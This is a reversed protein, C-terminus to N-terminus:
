VRFFATTQEPRRPNLERYESVDDILDLLEAQRGDTTMEQVDKKLEDFQFDSISAVERVVFDMKDKNIKSVGNLVVLRRIFEDRNQVGYQIEEMIDLVEDTTVGFQRACLYLPNSEDYKAYYQSKALDIFKNEFEDIFKTKEPEAFIRVNNAGLVSTTDYIVQAERSGHYAILFESVDVSYPLGYERRKSQAVHLTHEIERLDKYLSLLKQQYFDSAIDLKTVLKRAATHFLDTQTYVNELMRIKAVVKDYKKFEKKEIETFVVEMQARLTSALVPEDGHLAEDRRNFYDDVRDFKNLIRDKDADTLETYTYDLRIENSNSKKASSENYLKLNSKGTIGKVVRRKLQAFVSDGTEMETDGPLKEAEQEKVKVEDVSQPENDLVDTEDEYFEATGEREGDTVAFIEVDDEIEDEHASVQEISSDSYINDISDDASVDVADEAFKPMTDVTEAPTSTKEESNIIITQPTEDRSFAESEVSEPTISDNSSVAFSASTQSPQRVNINAQAVEEEINGNEINANAAISPNNGNRWDSLRNRLGGFTNRFREVIRDGLSNSDTSSTDIRQDVRDQDLKETGEEASEVTESSEAEIQEQEEMWAIAADMREDIEEDSLNLEPDDDDLIEDYTTAETDDVSDEVTHVAIRYEEDVSSESSDFTEDTTELKVTEDDKHETMDAEDDFMTVSPKAEPSKLEEGADATTEERRSRRAEIIRALRSRDDDMDADAVSGATRSSESVASGFTNTIYSSLRNAGNRAYTGLRTAGGRAYEGLRTVGDRTYEGLRVAGDRVRELVTPETFTEVAPREVVLGNKRMIDYHYANLDFEKAM